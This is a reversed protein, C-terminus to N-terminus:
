WKVLTLMKIFYITCLTSLRATNSVKCAAGAPPRKSVGVEGDRAYGAEAMCGYSLPLLVHTKLTHSYNTICPHVYADGYRWPSHLNENSLTFEFDSAHRALTFNPFYVRM